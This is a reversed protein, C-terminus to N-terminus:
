LYQMKIHQMLNKPFSNGIVIKNNADEGGFSLNNLGGHSVMNDSAIFRNDSKTNYQSQEGTLIEPNM